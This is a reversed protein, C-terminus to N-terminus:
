CKEGYKCGSQSEYDHCVRPHWYSCSPNKYNARFKCPIRIKKAPSEGRSNSTQVDTTAKAKPCSLIITRQVTSCRVPKGTSPPLAPAAQMEVKVKLNAVTARLEPTASVVLGGKQVLDM